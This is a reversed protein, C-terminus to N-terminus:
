HAPFLGRKRQEYSLLDAKWTTIDAKEFGIIM